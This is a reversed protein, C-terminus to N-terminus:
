GSADQLTPTAGERLPSRTGRAGEQSLVELLDGQREQELREVCEKKRRLAEWRLEEHVMQGMTALDQFCSRTREAEALKEHRVEM